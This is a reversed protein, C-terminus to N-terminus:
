REKQRRRGIVIYKKFENSAFAPLVDLCDGVQFLYDSVSLSITEPPETGQIEAYLGGDDATKVTATMIRLAHREYDSLGSEPARQRDIREPPVEIVQTKNIQGPMRDQYKPPQKNGFQRQWQKALKEAETM